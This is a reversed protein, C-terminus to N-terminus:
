RFTRGGHQAIFQRLAPRMEQLTARDREAWRIAERAAAIAPRSMGRSAWYRALQFHAAAASAIVERTIPATM